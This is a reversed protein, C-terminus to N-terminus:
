IHDDDHHEEEEHHLVVCDIEDAYKSMLWRKLKEEVPMQQSIQKGNKDFVKGEVMHVAGVRGGYLKAMRAPSRKGSNVLHVKMRTVAEALSMNEKLFNSELETLDKANSNDKIYQVQKRIFRKMDGYHPDSYRTCRCFGATDVAACDAWCALVLSADPWRKRHFASQKCKSFAYTCSVAKMAQDRM